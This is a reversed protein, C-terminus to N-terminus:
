GIDQQNTERIFFMVHLIAAASLLAYHWYLGALTLVEVMTSYLQLAAITIFNLWLLCVSLGQARISTPFYEVAILLPLSSLGAANAFAIGNFCFVPFLRNEVEGGSPAEPLYSVTASDDLSPLLRIDPEHGPLPAPPLFYTYFGLMAYGTAMFVLSVILCLRRGVRDVVSGSLIVGSLSVSSIILTSLNHDMTVGLDKLMRTTYSIIVDSGCFARLFILVFLPVMKNLMRTDKKILATYGSSGDERENRLKLLSLEADVDAKPGRVVRLVRRAEAEKNQVTLFAPTEPLVLWVSIGYIVLLIVNIMAMKYWSLDTATAAVTLYGVFKMVETTITAMGRFSINTIEAAYIKSSILM